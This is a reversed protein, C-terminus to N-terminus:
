VDRPDFRRSLAVNFYDNLVRATIADLSALANTNMMAVYAFKRGPVFLMFSVMQNVYGSHYWVPENEFVGVNWGLAYSVQGTFAADLVDIGEDVVMHSKKLMAHGAKSIPGSEDLMHQLYKSWDEVSSIAMGAGGLNGEDYQVMTYLGATDNDWYFSSSLNEGHALADGPHLYTHAMGMPRWLRDRLFCALTTNSIREVLHGMTGFMMNNYQWKARPEASMPLHRFRAVMEETDNHYPGSLDHRPYGTRHALADTITIHDTAWQDSLIFEPLLKSVPTDWTLLSSSNVADDILISLAAATNSKTMSGCFFLTSPTM